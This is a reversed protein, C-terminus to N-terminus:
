GTFSLTVPEPARTTPTTPTPDAAEAVRSVCQPLSEEAFCAAFALILSTTTVGADTVAPFQYAFGNDIDEAPDVFNPLDQGLWMFNNGAPCSPEDAFPCEYGGAIYNFGTGILGEIGFPAEPSTVGVFRPSPNLFQNGSDSGGLYADFSGYLRVPQTNGAPVTLEHTIRFYEDPFTYDLTVRVSYTLGGVEASLNAVASGSGTSGGTTESVWPTPVVGLAGNAPGVLITSEGTGIALYIGNYISTNPPTVGSEYLQDAGNRAVQFQGGSFYTRIGDTASTGGASNLIAGGDVASSPLVSASLALAIVALLAISVRRLSM